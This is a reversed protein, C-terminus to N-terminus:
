GRSKWKGDGMYISYDAAISFPNISTLTKGDGKGASTVLLVGGEKFEQNLKQRLFRFQEAAMSHPNSRLVLRAEEKIDPALHRFGNNWARSVAQEKPNPLVTSRPAAPTEVRAAVIPVVVPEPDRKEAIPSTAELTDLLSLGEDVLTPAITVDAGAQKAKEAQKLAEYFWSM